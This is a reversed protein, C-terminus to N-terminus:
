SGAPLQDDMFNYVPGGFSTVQGGLKVGCVTGNGNGPKGYSLVGSNPDDVRAPMQYGQETLQRVSLIKYGSPCGGVPAMAHAPTAAGATFLAAALVSTVIPTLRPNM